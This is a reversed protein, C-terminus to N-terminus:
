DNLLLEELVQAVGDERCDPAVLDAAEQVEKRANGMAVGIGARSIFPIDNGADGFSMVQDWTLGYIKLIPEVITGKNLNSQFVDYGDPCSWAFTMGPVDGYHPEVQEATGIIFAGLPRGATLHHTRTEDVQVISRERDTKCYGDIFRQGNAYAVVRDVFKYGLGIGEHLCIETLANMAEDTMEHKEIVSGDRRVLCAGNITGILEMPLDEFLTPQVFTYHRGTNVLLHIGKERVKLLDKKLRPSLRLQGGPILTDDVDAAILKINETNMKM